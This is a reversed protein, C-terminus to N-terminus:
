RRGLGMIVALGWVDSKRVESEFSVHEIRANSSMIAIVAKRTGRVCGIAM